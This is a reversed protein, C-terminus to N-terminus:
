TRSGGWGHSHWIMPVPRRRSAGAPKFLSYCIQVPTSSGPDPVSTVCDEVVKVGDAASSAASRAASTAVAPAAYSPSTAAPSTALLPVALALAALKRM